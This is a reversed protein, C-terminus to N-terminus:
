EVPGLRKAYRRANHVYGLSEYFAHADARALGSAIVVRGTGSARAWREAEDMLRRGVGRRRARGAVVLVSLMVVPPDEHIVDFLHATCLGLVDGGGEAVYAVARSTLLRALRHAVVEARAPYGLEGLLL